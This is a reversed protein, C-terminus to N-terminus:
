TIAEVLTKSGDSRGQRGIHRESVLASGAARSGFHCPEGQHLSEKIRPGGKKAPKVTADLHYIPSDPLRRKLREFAKQFFGVKALELFRRHVTARHPFEQPLDGWACGTSLVYLIANLIARDDVRKRGLHNKEPLLWAIEDWERDTLARYAMIKEGEQKDVERKL